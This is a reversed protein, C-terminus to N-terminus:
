GKQCGLSRGKALQNIIARTSKTLSQLSCDKTNSGRQSYRFHEIGLSAIRLVEIYLQGQLFHADTSSTGLSFFKSPLQCAPYLVGPIMLNYKLKFQTLCLWSKPLVSGPLGEKTWRTQLNMPRNNKLWNRTPQQTREAETGDGKPQLKTKSNLDQKRQNTNLDRSRDKPNSNLKGSTYPM